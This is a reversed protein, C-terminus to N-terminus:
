LIEQVFIIDSEVLTPLETVAAQYDLSTYSSDPESVKKVEVILQRFRGYNTAGSVSSTLSFNFVTDGLKWFSATDILNSIATTKESSTLETNTATVYRVRVALPSTVGRSFSIIETGGDETSVTYQVDGQFTTHISKRNYLETAVDAIEGGIVVPTVLKLGDVVQSAFKVKQVGEVNLLLGSLIAPLTCSRPSDVSRSAREIFAADTEVDSGDSFQTLNTVSVYGVPPVSITKIGGVRLPNFGTQTNITEILSFRNGISPTSLLKVTESLGTLEYAENFGWYLILNTEDIYVVDNLNSQELLVKVSNLFNLRATTTNTVLSFNGVVTSNTVLNQISLTYAGLPLSSADVKYATVRSSVLQTSTVAYQGGNEAPFITGVSVSTSDIASRNTEVVAFGTGATAKERFVGQSAFLEDLLPGEAGNLKLNNWGQEMTQQLNSERGAFIKLFQGINENDEISFRPNNFKIQVDKEIDLIIESLTDREFAGTTTNFGSM